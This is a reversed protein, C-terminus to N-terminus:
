SITEPWKRSTHLVRLIVVSNEEVRYAIIYPIDVLVKERTGPVRGPRGMGPQDALEPVASRIRDAVRAAASPNDIAIFRRVQILDNIADDQWRIRM